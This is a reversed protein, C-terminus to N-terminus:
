NIFNLITEKHDRKIKKRWMTMHWHCSSLQFIGAATVKIPRRRIQLNNTNSNNITTNNSAVSALFKRSSYEESQNSFASLQFINTAFNTWDKKSPYRCLCTDKNTKSQLGRLWSFFHPLNIPLVNKEYVFLQLRKAIRIKIRVAISTNKKSFIWNSFHVM